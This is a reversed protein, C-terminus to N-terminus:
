LRWSRKPLQQTIHGKPPRLNTATVMKIDYKCTVYGEYRIVREDFIWIKFNFLFPV